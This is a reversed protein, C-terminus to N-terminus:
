QLTKKFFFNEMKYDSLKVASELDDQTRHVHIKIKEYDNELTWEEIKRILQKELGKGRHEDKVIIDNGWVFDYKEVYYFWTYGVIEDDLLVFLEQNDKSLDRKKLVENYRSRVTDEDIEEVSERIIKDRFVKYGMEQIEEMDEPKMRSIELETEGASVLNEKDVVKSYYTDSVRYGNKRYLAIAHENDSFVHLGIKSMSRSRVLDDLRELLESGIGLGRFELDVVIDYIWIIPEYEYLDPRTNEAVWLYGAFEDEQNRVVKISKNEQTNLFSVMEEKYEEFSSVPIESKRKPQEEIMRYGLELFDGMDEEEIEKIEFHM